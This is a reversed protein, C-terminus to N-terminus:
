LQFCHHSPLSDAKPNNGEERGAPLLRTENSPLGVSAPCFRVCPAKASSFAGEEPFVNLVQVRVMPSITDPPEYPKLVELM